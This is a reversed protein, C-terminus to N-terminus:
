IQIGSRRDNCRCRYPIYRNQYFCRKRYVEYSGTKVDLVIADSGAALKKSLISSVILPLSDVTSTVDRLAYLTKDAPALHGTQGVVALDRNGSLSFGQCPPGGIIGDIVIDKSLLNDLDKIETIDGTIVKTKKHNKKYTDSAWEDLEIALPINFGAMEFGLSLGGCGAFLDIVNM